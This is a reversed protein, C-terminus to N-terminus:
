KVKKNKLIDTDTITSLKDMLSIRFTGAGKTKDAFEASIGMVYASFKAADFPNTVTLFASCICGTMCGTGTIKLLYEDGNEIVSLNNGSAIIDYKGTVFIVTNLSRSLKKVDEANMNILSDVGSYQMVDTLLTSIEAANGKIISPTYIKIIERILNYRLTSSSIGVCDLVYPINREKACIVSNKIANIKSDTVTGTNILLSDSAATIERVEDPHEAMVPRAGIALLANACDNITVTNTLCHILPAKEKLSEILEM